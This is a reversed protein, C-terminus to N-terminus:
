DIPYVQSPCIKTDYIDVCNGLFLKHMEQVEECAGFICKNRWFNELDDRCIWESTRQYEDTLTAQFCHRLPLHSELQSKTVLTNGFMQLKGEQQELLNQLVMRREAPTKAGRAVLDFGM